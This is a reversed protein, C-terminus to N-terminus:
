SSMRGEALRRADPKGTDVRHDAPVSRRATRARLRHRRAAPRQVAIEQASASTQETSASVQESSASSEEAVAAVETM